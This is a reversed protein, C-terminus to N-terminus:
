LLLSEAPQVGGLRRHQRGLLRFRGLLVHRRKFKDLQAVLNQVSEADAAAREGAGRSALENAAGATSGGSGAPRAANVATEAASALAGAPEQQDGRSPSSSLETAAAGERHPGVAAAVKSQGGNLTFPQVSISGAAETTSVTSPAADVADPYGFPSLMSAQSAPVSCSDASRIAVSGPHAASETKESNHWLAELVDPAASGSPQL